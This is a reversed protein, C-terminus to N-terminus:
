NASAPKSSIPKLAQLKKIWNSPRLVQMVPETVATVGPVQSASGAVGFLRQTLSPPAEMDKQTIPRGSPRRGLGTVKGLRQRLRPFTAARFVRKFINDTPDKLGIARGNADRVVKYIKANAAPALCLMGAALILVIINRVRFM